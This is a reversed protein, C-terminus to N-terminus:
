QPLVIGEGSRNFMDNQLIIHYIEVPSMTARYEEEQFLAAFEPIYQNYREFTIASFDISLWERDEESIEGPKFFIGGGRMSKWERLSYVEPHYTLMYNGYTEFESFGHHIDKLADFIKEYYRQGSFDTAEIRELMEKVYSTKFLMHEAVFSNSGPLVKDDGSFIQKITEFYGPMYEQKIDFIPKGSEDFMEVKRIPQTDADWELYYEDPCVYAYQLKLFQQYYWGPFGEVKIGKKQFQEQIAREVDATSLLENENIFHIHEEFETNMKDKIVKEELDKPGIFFIDKIPLYEFFAAFNMNARIYDAKLSPIILQVKENKM